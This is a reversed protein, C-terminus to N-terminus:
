GEERGRGGECMLGQVSRERCTRNLERMTGMEDGRTTGLLVWLM